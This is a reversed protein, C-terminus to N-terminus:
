FLRDLVLHSLYGLMGALCYPLLIQPQIDYFVTPIAAVAAPVLIMAWLSHTWGRHRGLAPLMAVFGLVAAWRYHGRIMLMLDVVVLVAYFLNQGKSDTDVDPFLAGLAALAMLVAAQGPDPRFVGWWALGILLGAALALGASIHAKYGPM